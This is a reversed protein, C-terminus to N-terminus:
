KRFDQTGEIGKLIVNEKRLKRGSRLIDLTVTDGPRFRAIQEQLEPVSKTKIGNIGILVDNKNIGAKEASSGADVSRVYVGEVAPLDFDAAIEENVDMIRVGLIARQVSGHQKLDAMIKKVLNSPIAFSYGEYGGTESMIASNIGVLEGERNVLAGGSNGPNVVADTQIFSEVSYLGQLININRGKASVIGATVTSTLNFPNGVALVWQGVQVEDSNGYRIAPLGFADIKLLALDTTPDKGVIEAAYTRKNLLTVEIKGGGDIVHNNTIVYGDPSMIVGSGGSVPEYTSRSSVTINVVSQTTLNATTVFDEPIGFAQSPSVNLQGSRFNVQQAVPKQTDSLTEAVSQKLGNFLFLTFAANLALTAVIALGIKKM